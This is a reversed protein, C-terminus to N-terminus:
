FVWIERGFTNICEKRALAKYFLEKWRSQPVEKTLTQRGKTECDYFCLLRAFIFTKDPDTHHAIRADGLPCEEPCGSKDDSDSKEDSGTIERIREWIAAVGMGGGLAQAARGLAAMAGPIAGLVGAKGALDIRTLPNGRVYAYTNSGGQIGIPDSTIYRGLEPDYYRNWNYHLNTEQDFYQGPFRLNVSFGALEEAATNGFAEGEWRWVVSQLEDTALRNTM